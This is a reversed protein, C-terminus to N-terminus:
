YIKNLENLLEKKKDEDMGENVFFVYGCDECKVADMEAHAHHNDLMKRIAIKDKSGCKPCPAMLEEWKM